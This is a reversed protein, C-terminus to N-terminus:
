RIGFKETFAKRNALTRARRAADSEVEVTKLDALRREITAGAARVLAVLRETLAEGGAENEFLSAMWMDPLGAVIAAVTEAPIAALREACGHSEIEPRYFPHRRLEKLFAAERCADNGTVVARLAMASSFDLCRVAGNECILNSNLPTRDFNLLFVDFLFVDDRVDPAVTELNEATLPVADAVFTTAFNVGLSREALERIEPDRDRLEREIFDASIVVLAPEVVPVGLARALGFAIWEVAAAPIGDGNGFPKVVYTTGDDGVAVLPLSSGARIERVFTTLHITKWPIFNM